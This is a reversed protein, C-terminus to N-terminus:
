KKTIYTYGLFGAVLGAVVALAGGAKGAEKLYKKM